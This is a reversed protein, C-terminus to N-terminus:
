EARIQGHSTDHAGTGSRTCVSFDHWAGLLLIQSLEAVVHLREVHARHLYGLIQSNKRKCTTPHLQWVLFVFTGSPRVAPQVSPLLVFWSLVFESFRFGKDIM